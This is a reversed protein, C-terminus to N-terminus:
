YKGFAIKYSRRGIIKPAFNNRKSSVLEEVEPTMGWDVTKIINPFESHLSEDLSKDYYDVDDPELEMWAENTVYTVENNETM